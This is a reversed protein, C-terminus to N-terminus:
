DSKSIYLLMKIRKYRLESDNARIISIFFYKQM